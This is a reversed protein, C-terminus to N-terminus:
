FGGGGPKGGAKGVLNDIILLKPQWSSKICHDRRDTTTSLVYMTVASKQALNDELADIASNDFGYVLKLLKKSATLALLNIVTSNADRLTM